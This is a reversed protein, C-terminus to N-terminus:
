ELHLAAQWVTLGMQCRVSHSKRVNASTVPSHRVDSPSEMVGYLSSARERSEFHRVTRSTLRTDNLIM